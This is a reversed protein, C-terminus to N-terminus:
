VGTVRCITQHEHLGAAVAAYALPRGFSLGVHVFRCVLVLRKPFSALSPTSASAKAHSTGSSSSTVALAHLSWNLSWCSVLGVAVVRGQAPLICQM